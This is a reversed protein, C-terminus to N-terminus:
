GRSCKEGLLQQVVLGVLATIRCFVISFAAKKSRLAWLVHAVGGGGMRHLCGGATGSYTPRCAGGSRRFARKSFVAWYCRHVGM